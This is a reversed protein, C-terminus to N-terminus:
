QVHHRALRAPRHDHLLMLLQRINRLVTDRAEDWAFHLPLQGGTYLWTEVPVNKGSHNDQNVDRPDRSKSVRTRNIAL